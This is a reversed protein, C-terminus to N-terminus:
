RLEVARLPGQLDGSDPQLAALANVLLAKGGYGKGQQLPVLFVPAALSTCCLSSMM